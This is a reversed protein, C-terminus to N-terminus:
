PDLRVPSASLYSLHRQGKEMQKLSSTAVSSPTSALSSGSSSAVIGQSAEDADRLIGTVSPRDHGMWSEQVDEATSAEPQMHTSASATQGPTHAPGQTRKMSIAVLEGRSCFRQDEKEGPIKFCTHIDHSMERSHRRLDESIAFTAHCTYCKFDAPRHVTDEHARLAHKDSVAEGCVMCASPGNRARAPSYSPVCFRESVCDGKANDVKREEAVRQGELLERHWSRGAASKSAQSM